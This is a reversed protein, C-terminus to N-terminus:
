INCLFSFIRNHSWLNKLRITCHVEKVEFLTSFHACWFSECLQWKNELFPFILTKWFSSKLGKPNPSKPKHIKLLKHPSKLHNLYSGDIILSPSFWFRRSFQSLLCLKNNQFQCRSLFIKKLFLVKKNKLISLQFKWTWNSILNRSVECFKM